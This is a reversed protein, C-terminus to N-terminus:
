GFLLAWVGWAGFVAALIALVYPGLVRLAALVLLAADGISLRPRSEGHVIRM